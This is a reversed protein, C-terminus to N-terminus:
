RPQEPATENHRENPDPELRLPERAPQRKQPQECLKILIAPSCSCQGDPRAALQVVAATAAAVLSEGQAQEERLRDYKGGTHAIKNIKEKM